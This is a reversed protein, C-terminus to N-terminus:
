SAQGASAGWGEGHAKQVKPAREDLLHEGNVSLDFQQLSVVPRYSRVRSVVVVEGLQNELRPEQADNNSVVLIIRGDLPQASRTAPFSIAFRLRTAPAAGGTPPGDLAQLAAGLLLALSLAFCLRRAM